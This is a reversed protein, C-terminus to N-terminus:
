IVCKAKHKMLEGGGGNRKKGKREKNRTDENDDRTVIDVTQDCKMAYCGNVIMVAM